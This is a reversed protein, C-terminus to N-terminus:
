TLMPPDLRAPRWFLSVYPIRSRQPFIAQVSEFDPPLLPLPSRAVALHRLDQTLDGGKVVGTWQFAAKWKRSCWVKRFTSCLCEMWPIVDRNGLETEAALLCKALCTKYPAFAYVDLPRLLFTLGAPVVTMWLELEQARAVVEPHIHCSVCDLLLIPQLDPREVSTERLKVLIRLM